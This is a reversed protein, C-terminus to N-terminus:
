ISASQIAIARRIRETIGPPSVPVPSDTVVVVEGTADVLVVAEKIQVDTGGWIGRDFLRGQIRQFPANPDGTPYWVETTDTGFLWFQDGVVRVSWLGDPSREATAFNLPDITTEGPEIWYFRGNEGYGQSIVVIIYGAIYGVSVVGVDDPTAVTHFSEIGGDTLTGAGWGLDAGSVVTTSIADGSSGPLRAQIDLTDTDSDLAMVTPHQQTATSYATGAAGSVNIADSLNTLADENSSGLAVLWPNASTGAPTGTDVAGSTWKYYVGGIETTDTDAITGTVNLQGSSFSNDTYVWLNVGDALFLYDPTAAMSVSARLGAGSIGSGINTVTEDIDIRFLTTASVAFLADSFSGPQTYVGRIPGDGIAMWKRLGPRALLASQEVQNTPDSEFYRNVVKLEFEQAVSRRNDSYGLPISTM